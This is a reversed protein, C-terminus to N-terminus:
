LSLKHGLPTIPPLSSYMSLCDEMTLCDKLLVHSIMYGRRRFTTNELPYSNLYSNEGKNFSKLILGTKVVILFWSSLARTSHACCIINFKSTVLLIALFDESKNWGLIHQSAPEEPPTYIVLRKASLGSPRRIYMTTKYILYIYFLHNGSAILLIEM